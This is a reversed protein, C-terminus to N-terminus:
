RSTDPHKLTIANDLKNPTTVRPIVVPVMKGGAAANTTSADTMPM